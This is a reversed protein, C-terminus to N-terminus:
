RGWWEGVIGLRALQLAATSTYARVRERDGPLRLFRSRTELPTRVGIAVSGPPLEMADPGAVGTVAVAVDVGLAKAAGEAMAVATEESIVGHEEITASPVGLVSEKVDTAYAVIGGRFVSSSGPLVSLRAAVMGSTMSEATGITWSRSTLEAIIVSELTEDDAAFVMAGLRRRVEAEVPAIMAEAEAAGAAKASIRVKIEGASALYAISPNVTAHYLDDLREAVASEGQGWTRLLRNVLVETTGSAARLRPLVHDDLLLYMEPPVGPLAFILTGDHELAIGPATGKPNPLQEAGAPYEAQRLNNEPLTRGLREWRDRLEAAYDENFEMPRGTAACIAERTLDDPTPGIGGTLIVADARDIATAIADTLRGHNDGVVVQYHADFGSEALKAGIHSANSNVIQGLLLETGVAIVEVIM